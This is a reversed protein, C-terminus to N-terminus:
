TPIQLTRNLPKFILIIRRLINPKTTPKQGLSSRPSNTDRVTAGQQNLLDRVKQARIDSSGANCVRSCAWTHLAATKIYANGATKSRVSELHM